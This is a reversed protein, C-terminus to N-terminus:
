SQAPTEIATSAGVTPDASSEVIVTRLARASRVLEAADVIWGDRILAVDDATLVHRGARRDLEAMVGALWELDELFAPEGTDIRRKLAWPALLLWWYQPGSSFRWLLKYDLHGARALLAYKECIGAIVMAAAGPIETPDTGDRLAVLIELRCLQFQESAGERVFTELLEFARSSAQVRLQRYIAIFTVALILGTLATWFWESGPGVFAMGDTNIFTM